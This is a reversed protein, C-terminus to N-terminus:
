ECTQIGPVALDSVVRGPAFGGIVRVGRRRVTVFTGGFMSSFTAKAAYGRATYRSVMQAPTTTGVVVGAATRVGRRFALSTLKGRNFEATGTVGKPAAAGAIRYTIPLPTGGLECGTGRHSLWGTRVASVRSMGLKLPGIGDLRLVSVPAEPGGTASAPHAQGVLGAVVVVLVIPIMSLRRM